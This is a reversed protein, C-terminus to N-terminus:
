KKSKKIAQVAEKAPNIINISRSEAQKMEKLVARHEDDYTALTIKVIGTDIGGELGATLERRASVNARAIRLAESFSKNKDALYTMWSPAYRRQCAFSKLILSDPKESWEILEKAEEEIREPTWDLPRGYGVAYQNGKMFESHEPRKLGKAM